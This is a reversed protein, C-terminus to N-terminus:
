SLSMSFSLTKYKMRRVDSVSLNIMDRVVAASTTIPDQEYIKMYLAQYYDTQLQIGMEWGDCSGLFSNEEVEIPKVTLQWNGQSKKAEALLKIRNGRSSAEKIAKATISRVGDITINKISGSFSSFSKMIIFLKNATDYGDIDLSPDAEAAGIISAQAVASDFSRGYELAQLIFNSTANFIGKLSILETTLLDRQLVNIVPLGGCVAASYAIQGGHKSALEHLTDFGIVLPSKNASVVNWGKSLAKQIAQFGPGGTQLNVPSGDVLMDANIHETINDVSVQPLYGTLYSANHYSSKLKVLDEYSYGNNNIAIGSSDAVAVIIYELGHTKLITHKKKALIKLVGLNVSGLGVLVIRIKKLSINTKM